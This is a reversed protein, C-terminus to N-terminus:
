TIYSIILVMHCPPTNELALFKYVKFLWWLPDESKFKSLGMSNQHLAVSENM